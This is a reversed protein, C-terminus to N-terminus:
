ANTDNRLKLNGQWMWDASRQVKAGPFVGRIQQKRSGKRPPLVLAAATPSDFRLFSHTIDHKDGMYHSTCLGVNSCTSCVWLIGAVDGTADSNCFKCKEGDHRVGVTANDIVRLAYADLHGTFCQSQQGNDWRVTVMSRDLSTSSPKIREVITGVGGEGGDIDGGSWDPGRYM